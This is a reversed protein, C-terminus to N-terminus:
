SRPPLSVNERPPAITVDFFVTISKTAQYPRFQVKEIRRGHLELLEPADAGGSANRDHHQYLWSLEALDLSMGPPAKELIVAREISDGSQTGWRWDPRGVGFAGLIGPNCPGWCASLFLPLALTLTKSLLKM